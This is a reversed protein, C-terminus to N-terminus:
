ITDKLKMTNQKIGDNCKIPRGDDDLMITGWTSSGEQFEIFLRGYSCFLRVDSRTSDIIWVALVVVAIMIPWFYKM